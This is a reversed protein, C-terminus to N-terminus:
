SMGQVSEQSSGSIQNLEDSLKTAKETVIPRHLVDYLHLEPM